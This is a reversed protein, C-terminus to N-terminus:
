LYGCNPLIHNKGNHKHTNEGKSLQWHLGGGGGGRRKKKKKKKDKELNKRKKM